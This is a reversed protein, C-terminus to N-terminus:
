GGVGGAPKARPHQHVRRGLAMAIRQVVRDGSGFGRDAPLCRIDNCQLTIQWRKLWLLQGLRDSGRASVPAAEDAVPVACSRRRQKSEANSEIRMESSIRSLAMSM